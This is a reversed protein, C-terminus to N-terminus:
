TYNSFAGFNTKSIQGFYNKLVAQIIGILWM